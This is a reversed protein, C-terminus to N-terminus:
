QVTINGTMTMAYKDMQTGMHGACGQIETHKKQKKEISLNFCSKQKLVGSGIEVEEDLDGGFACLFVLWVCVDAHCAETYASKRRIYLDWVCIVHSLLNLLSVHFTM